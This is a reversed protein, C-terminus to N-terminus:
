EEATIALCFPACVTDDSKVSDITAVKKEPYPNEWKGLYLRLTSNRSKAVSNIGTWVVRGRGVPREQDNDFWDRVDQGYAM